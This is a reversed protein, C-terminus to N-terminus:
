EISRFSPSMVRNTRLQFLVAADVLLKPKVKYAMQIAREIGVEIATMQRTDWHDRVIMDACASVAGAIIRADPTARFEDQETAAMGIITMLDGAESLESVCPDGHSKIVLKLLVTRMRSDMSRIAIGRGIPNRLAIVLKDIM